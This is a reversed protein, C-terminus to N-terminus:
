LRGTAAIWRYDPGEFGYRRISILVAYVPDGTQPFFTQVGGLRYGNPCGRSLPLATDQHILKTRGNPRSDIRILSFGSVDGLGECREPPAMGFEDLRFELMPDVPPYVPRPNAAIRHPDASDETIANFAALNGRFRDLLADKFLKEGRARAQARAAQVDQGEDELLVRIPTGSVFKDTSTDIYFRHAYPFGSGDQVGYEEFAFVRGDPSFGLVNVNATDGAHALTLWAALGPLAAALVGAIRMM